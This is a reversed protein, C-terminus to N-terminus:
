LLSREVELALPFLVENEVRLHLRLDADLAELESLCEQWEDPAGQRAIFGGTIQRLRDMAVLIRAHEAEMMRIPHLVTPFPLAPLRTGERDAKALADLATFLLNEEKALHSLLQHTLDEFVMRAEGLAAIRLPHDESLHVLQAHILPLAQHLYAHHRDLIDNCLDDIGPTM